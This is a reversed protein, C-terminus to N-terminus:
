KKGTVGAKANVDLKISVDDNVKRVLYSPREYALAAVRVQRLLYESPRLPLEKLVTSSRTTEPLSLIM